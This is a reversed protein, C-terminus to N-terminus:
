PGENNKLVRSWDIEGSDRRQMEYAFVAETNKPNLEVAAFLLVAALYANDAGQQRHLLEARKLFLESLTDRQYDTAVQDPQIGRRLQFNTVVAKRNRPDLHLALGLLREALTIEGGDGAVVGPALVNIVHGALQDAMDEREIRMLGLNEGFTSHRIEALQYSAESGFASNAGCMLSGGLCCAAAIIRTFLM